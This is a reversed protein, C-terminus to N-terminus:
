LTNALQRAQDRSPFDSDTSLLAEILEKAESTGGTQALASALHYQIEFDDPAQAVAQRLLEVARDNEGANLLIWGLTDSISGNEPDLEHAKEALVVADSRGMLSYHWALNNMGVAGLEGSANLQEYQEVAKDANGNAELLQAYMLRIAADDPSDALWRELSETANGSGLVQRTSALKVAVDRTWEKEAALEYQSLALKPSDSAFEIDGILLYGATDDPHDQIFENVDSRAQDPTGAQIEAAVLLSIGRVDEPRLERYSRASRSAGSFDGLKFHTIALDYVYTANEPSAAVAREFNSLALEFQGQASRITGELHDLGPEDAFLQKADAVVALAADFQEEEVELAALLVRPAISNPAQDIAAVLIPRIDSLADQQQLIAALSLLAPTFAPHAALLTEFRSRALEINGDSSAMSGLYFLAGLNDPDRELAKNFLDAALSKDGLTNQLMGVLAYTSADQSYNELLYDGREIAKEQNNEKLYAGILLAERQYLSGPADEMSELLSIADENRNAQLYAAALSLSITHNNPDAAASQEFYDIASEIEGLKIEARGLMSLLMADSQGDLLESQLAGLAEGPKDLRLQTEALLRRVVDGGVNARGAQMFYMEAQRYNDQSFHVAGLLAPVRADQPVQALYEQLESQALDYDGIGFALRGRLFKLEPHAPYIASLEELQITAADFDRAEILVTARGVRTAFRQALTTDPKETSISKAYAEAAGAFDRQIRLFNGKARWVFPSSANAEAARNLYADAGQLDEEYVALVALGILGGPSNPNLEVAALYAAKAESSNSLSILIDGQLVLASEDDPSLNPSVREFADQAKRQELLTRGFGVWVDPRDEGLELARQFEVEATALDGIQFSAKAMLLRAEGYDPEAQLANKLELIASRYDAESFYAEARALREEPAPQCAVMLFIVSLIVCINSIRGNRRTHQNEIFM